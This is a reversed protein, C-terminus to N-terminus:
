SESLQFKYLFGCFMDLFHCCKLSTTSAASHLYHSPSIKSEKSLLCFCCLTHSIGHPYSLLLIKNELKNWEALELCVAEPNLAANQYESHKFKWHACLLLLAYGNSIAKVCGSSPRAPWGSKGSGRLCYSTQCTNETREHSLLSSKNNTCHKGM